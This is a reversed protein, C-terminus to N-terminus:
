FRLISEFKSFYGYIRNAKSLPGKLAERYTDRKLTARLTGKLTTKITSPKLNLSQPVQEKLPVRSPVRFPAKFSGSFSGRCARYKPLVFTQGVGEKTSPLAGNGWLIGAFLVM